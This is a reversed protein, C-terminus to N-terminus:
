EEVKDYSKDFIDPKCPYLEGNVGRIIWDGDSIRMNGELTKITPYKTVGGDRYPADLFVVGNLVAELLWPPSESPKFEHTLPDVHAQIAEVEIPKKRVKMTIEQEIIRRM